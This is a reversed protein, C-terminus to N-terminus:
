LSKKYETYVRRTREEREKNLNEFYKLLAVSINIALEKTAEDTGLLEINDIENVLATWKDSKPKIYYYRRLIAWSANYINREAPINSLEVPKM